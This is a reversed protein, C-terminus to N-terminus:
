FSLYKGSDIEIAWRHLNRPRENALIESSLDITTDESSLDDFYFGIDPWLIPGAVCRLPSGLPCIDHKARSPNGVDVEDVPHVMTQVNHSFPLFKGCSYQDSC